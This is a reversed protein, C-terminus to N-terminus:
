TLGKFMKPLYLYKKIILNNETENRIKKSKTVRSLKFLLSKGENTITRFNNTVLGKNKLEIYLYRIEERTIGLIQCIFINEYGKNKLFLLTIAAHNQERIKKTSDQRMDPREGILNIGSTLNIGLKDCISLYYNIEKKLERAESMRVDARRPYLSNWDKTKGWILSITNNPTGHFFAISSASNEYGMPLFQNPPRNVPIKNGYKNVIARVSKFTDNSFAKYPSFKDDFLNHRVESVITINAYNTEIKKKGDNMIIASLLYINKIKYKTLWNKIGSSEFEDCFTKGSGIFDDLFIIHKYQEPSEIYEFDHSLLINTSRKKFATTNRLPYTVLTGSKGVKGYPFVIIKDEKPIEKLLEKLLSDLRSMFEPFSIYEFIRLIDLAFPVDSEDFNELWKIIKTPYLSYKLRPILYEIQRISDETYKYTSRM